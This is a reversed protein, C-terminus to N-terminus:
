LRPRKKIKPLKQAIQGAYNDEFGGCTVEFFM